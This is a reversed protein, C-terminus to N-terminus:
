PDGGSALPRGVIALHLDRVLKVIGQLGLLLCSLPIALKIPYYPPAWDSASHERLLWSDWFFTWSTYGLALVFVFFFVSTFCDVIARRRPMWRYSIVDVNVHQGHYQAYAGSLVYQVGFALTSFEHAWNTPANFFYRSVVEIVTVVIVLPTVYALVKGSGDSIREVFALVSALMSVLREKM